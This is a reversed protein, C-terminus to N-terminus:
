VVQKGQQWEKLREAIVSERMSPGVTMPGEGQWYGDVRKVGYLSKLTDEELKLKRWMQSHADELKYFRTEVRRLRRLAESSGSAVTDRAERKFDRAELALKRSERARAEEMRAEEYVYSSIKGGGAPPDVSWRSCKCNRWGHIDHIMSCHRRVEQKEFDRVGQKVFRVHKENERAERMLERALSKAYRWIVVAEKTRELRRERATAAARRARMEAKALAAREARRESLPRRM